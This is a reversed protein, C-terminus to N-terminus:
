SHAMLQTVQHLRWFFYFAQCALKTDIGSHKEIM